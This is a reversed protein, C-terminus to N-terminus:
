LYVVYDIPIDLFWIMIDFRKQDVKMINYVWIIIMFLSNIITLAALIAILSIDVTEYYSLNEFLHYVSLLYNKYAISINKSVSKEDFYNIVRAKIINM